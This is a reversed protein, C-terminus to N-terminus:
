IVLVSFGPNTFDIGTNVPSYFLRPDRIGPSSGRFTIFKVDQIYCQEVINQKM